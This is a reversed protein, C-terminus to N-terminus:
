RRPACSRARPTPGILEDREKTVEGGVAALSEEIEVAEDNSIQGTRVTINEGDGTGSSTQM